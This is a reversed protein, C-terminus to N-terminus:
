KKKITSNNYTPEIIIAHLRKNAFLASIARKNQKPAKEKKVYPTFPILFPKAKLKTRIAIEKNCPLQRSL